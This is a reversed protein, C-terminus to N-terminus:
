SSLKLGGSGLEDFAEAAKHAMVLPGRLDRSSAERRGGFNFCSSEETLYEKGSTGALVDSSLATATHQRRANRLRELQEAETLSHGGGTLAPVKESTPSVLESGPQKRMRWSERVDSSRDEYVMLTRREHASALDDIRQGLRQDTLWLQEDIAALTNQESRLATRIESRM